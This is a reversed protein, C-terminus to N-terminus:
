QIRATMEGILTNGSRRYGGNDEAIVGATSLASRFIEIDTDSQSKIAMVFYGRAADFRIREIALTENGDIVGAVIQSLQLFSAGTSQANVINRAHRRIEGRPVDPYAKQYLEIAALNYREAVRQDRFGSSVSLALACFAVGAALAAPRRWEKVGTFLKQRRHYDGQLFNVATGSDITRSVISLLAADDSGGQVTPKRQTIEFLVKQSGLTTLDPSKEVELAPMVFSALTEDAAFGRAGASAIIRDGRQIVIPHDQSAGLCAFDASVFDPELEIERLSDLWHDFITKSIAYIRGVDSEAGVAIHLTDTDEGLEDELIYKSASVFKVRNRPPNPLSRMACQEGPLIVSISFDDDFRGLIEGISSLSTAHGIENVVTKTVGAWILPEAPSQGMLLILRENM